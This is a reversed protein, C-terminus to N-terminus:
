ADDEFDRKLENAVFDVFLRVRRSLLRSHPYVLNVPTPPPEFEGLVRKLEGAKLAAQVQYSLFRGFGLGAVCAAVCYGMNNCELRTQPRVAVNKGGATFTWVKRELVSPVVCALQELVSPHEPVGVESLLKPSACTLIRLAGVPRAIMSSDPLSAIRLAVDVGEELMDVVRDLLLVKLRVQPYRRMFAAIAPALRIQGFQVPATVTLLGSPLASSDRLELEADEIQALISRCREVYGEGEPTLVVRRTTRNFLRAQLSEELEALVRVITPLSKGMCKSAATLSGEDAISVVVRM